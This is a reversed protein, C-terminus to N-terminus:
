WTEMREWNKYMDRTPEKGKLAKRAPRKQQMPVATKAPAWRFREQFKYLRKEPRPASLNDYQHWVSTMSIDHELWARTMSKDHQHWAPTMCIVHQLRASTMSIDHQHWASTMSIDHQHWASTMGIDHRLSWICSPHKFVADFVCM